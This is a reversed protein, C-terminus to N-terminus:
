LAAPVKAWNEGRKIRSLQTETVAHRKALVRLSVGENMRKKLIMVQKVTLKANTIRGLAKIKSEKVFPSNKQHAVNEARTMWKLNTSENNDKDFDIHAVLNHQESPKECFHIAVLRHVLFGFNNRRQLTNKKYKTQYKTKTKDLIEQTVIIKETIDSYLKSKPDCLLLEEELKKIEKQFEAIQNRFQTFELNNEESIKSLLGLNASPYGETQTQRLIFVEQTEITIKKARGLNSIFLTYKECFPAPLVAEKWEEQRIFRKANM